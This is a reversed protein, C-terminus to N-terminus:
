THHCSQRLMMLIFLFAEFTVWNPASYHQGSIIRYNNTPLARKVLNQLCSCPSGKFFFELLYTLIQSLSKSLASLDMEGAAGTLQIERAQTRDDCDALIYSLTIKCDNLHGEKEQFVDESIRVRLVRCFV